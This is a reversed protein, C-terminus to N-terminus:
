RGDSHKDVWYEIPEKPHAEFFEISEELTSFWGILYYDLADLTPFYSEITFGTHGDLVGEACEQCFACRLGEWDPDTLFIAPTTNECGRWHCIKM